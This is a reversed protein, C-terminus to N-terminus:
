CAASLMLVEHYASWNCRDVTETESDILVAQLLDLLSLINQIFITKFAFKYNLELKVLDLVLRDYM